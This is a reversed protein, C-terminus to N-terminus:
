GKAYKIKLLACVLIRIADLEHESHWVWEAKKLDSRNIRHSESPTVRIEVSANMDAWFRVAGIIQPAIQRRSLFSSRSVFDEYVILGESPVERTRLFRHLETQSVTHTRFTPERWLHGLYCIGTSDGPDFAYVHNFSTDKLIEIM